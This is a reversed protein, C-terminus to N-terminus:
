KAAGKKSSKWLAWGGIAAPVFMIMFLLFEALRGLSIGM